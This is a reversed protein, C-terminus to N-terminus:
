RSIVSTYLDEGGEKNGVLVCSRVHTAGPWFQLKGHRWYNEMVLGEISICKTYILSCPFLLPLYLSELVQIALTAKRPPLGLGGASTVPAAQTVPPTQGMSSTVTVSVPGATSVPPPLGTTPDLIYRLEQSTQPMM